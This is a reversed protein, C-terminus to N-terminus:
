NLGLKLKNKQQVSEVKPVTAVNNYDQFYLLKNCDVSDLIASELIEYSIKLCGVLELDVM